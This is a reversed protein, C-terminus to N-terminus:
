GDRLAGTSAGIIIAAVAKGFLVCVRVNPEVSGIDCLVIYIYIYRIYVYKYSIARTGKVQAVIRAICRDTQPWRNDIERIRQGCGQPLM